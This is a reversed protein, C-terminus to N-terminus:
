RTRKKLKKNETQNCEVHISNIELKLLYISYVHTTERVHGPLNHDQRHNNRRHSCITHAAAAEVMIFMGGFM